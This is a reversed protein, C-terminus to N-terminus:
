QTKAEADTLILGARTGAKFGSSATFTPQRQAPIMTEVGTVPHRTTRPASWRVGFTGLDDLTVSGGKRTV